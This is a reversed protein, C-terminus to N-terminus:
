YVRGAQEFRFVPDFLEVGLVSAVMPDKILALRVTDVTFRADYNSEIARGMGEIILLDSEAAVAACEASVGRLDILPAGCGSAVVTILREGVFRDLKDDLRRCSDLLTELESATIDNLAPTTNAALVVRIGRGALERALPLGGLVIDPGANDVFFLAQRYAGAAGDLRRAWDDLGDVAWPRPRVRERAALFDFEREGFADIAAKSGMDFLNGAMLGRALREIRTAQPAADLDALVAILQRVALDNERRKLDTFPDRIGHSAFQEERYVTLELVSLRGRRGPERRLDALGRLYDRSFEEWGAQDRLRGKGAPLDGLVKVHREFVQLWYERVEEGDTLLDQICPRYATSDAILPLVSM